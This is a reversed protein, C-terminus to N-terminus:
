KGLFSKLKRIVWCDIYKTKYKISFTWGLPILKTTFDKKIITCDSLLFNYETLQEKITTQKSFKSRM